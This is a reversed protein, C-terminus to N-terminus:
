IGMQGARHGASRIGRARRARDRNHGVRPRRQETSALLGRRGNDPQTGRRSLARGGGRARECGRGPERPSSWTILTSPIYRLAGSGGNMPGQGGGAGEPRRVLGSRLGSRVSLPSSSREAPAQRHRTVTGPRKPTISDTKAVARPSSFPTGSVFRTMSIALRACAGRESCSGRWVQTASTSRTSRVSLQAGIGGAGAGRKPRPRLDSPIL